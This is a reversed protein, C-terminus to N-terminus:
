ATVPSRPERPRHALPTGPPHSRRSPVARRGLSHEPTDIPEVDPNRCCPLRPRMSSWRPATQQRLGIRRRRHRYRRTEPPIARRSHSMNPSMPPPPRPPVPSRPPAPPSRSSPSPPASWPLTGKPLEHGSQPPILRPSAVPRLVSGPQHQVSRRMLAPSRGRLHMNPTFPAVRFTLM